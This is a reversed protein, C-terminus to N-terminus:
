LREHENVERLSHFSDSTSMMIGLGSGLSLTAKSFGSLEIRWRSELRGYTRKRTSVSSICRPMGHNEAWLRYAKRAARKVHEPLSSYAEWFLPLTASKM